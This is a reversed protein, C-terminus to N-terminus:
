KGLFLFKLRGWFGRFVVGELTTIKTRVQLIEETFGERIMTAEHAITAENDSTQRAVDNMFKLASDGLIKRADRRELKAQKERGM